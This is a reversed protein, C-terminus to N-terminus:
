FRVAGSLGPWRLYCMRSSAGCSCSTKFARKVRGLFTHENASFHLCYSIQSVCDADIVTAVSWTRTCILCSDHGRCGRRRPGKLTVTWGWALAVGQLSQVVDAQLNKRTLLHVSPGACRARPLETWVWSQSSPCTQLVWAHPCIASDLILVSWPTFACVVHQGGRGAPQGGEGGGTSASGLFPIM